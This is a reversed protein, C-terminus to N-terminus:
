QLIHSYKIFQKCMVVLSSHLHVKAIAIEILSCVGTFLLQPVQLLNLYSNKKIKNNLKMEKKIFNQWSVIRWDSQNLGIGKIGWVTKDRYQELNKLGQCLDLCMQCISFTKRSVNVTIKTALLLKIDIGTTELSAATGFLRAYSFLNGPPMVDTIAYLSMLWYYIALSVQKVHKFLYHKLNSQFSLTECWSIDLISDAVGKRELSFNITFNCYRLCKHVM